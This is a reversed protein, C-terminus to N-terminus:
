IIIRTYRVYMGGGSLLQHKKNKQKKTKKNKKQKKKQKWINFFVPRPIRTHNGEEWERGRRLINSEGETQIYGTEKEIDFLNFSSRGRRCIQCYSYMYVLTHAACRSSWWPCRLSDTHTHTTHLMFTWLAAWYDILGCPGAMCATSYICYKFRLKRKTPKEKWHTIRQDQKTANRESM